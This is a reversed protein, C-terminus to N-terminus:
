GVLDDIHNTIDLTRSSLRRYIRVVGDNYGVVFCACSSSGGFPMSMVRHLVPFCGVPIGEEFLPGDHGVPCWRAYKVRGFLVPPNQPDFGGPKNQQTVITGNDFELAWEYAFV